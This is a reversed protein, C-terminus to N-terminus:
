LRYLVGLTFYDVNIKRGFDGGGMNPYRTWELRAGFRNTFDYQGGLGFDFGFKKEEAQDGKLTGYFIGARVLASFSAGVPFTSLLDIEGGRAKLSAGDVRANGSDRVAGELSLYRSFRKGVFFGVTGARDDCSAAGECADRYKAAGLQAGIYVDTEQAAAPLSVLAAVLGAAPLLRIKRM